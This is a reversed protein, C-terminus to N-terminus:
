AASTHGQSPHRYRRFPHFPPYLLDISDIGEGRNQREDLEHLEHPEVLTIQNMPDRYIRSELQHFTNASKM